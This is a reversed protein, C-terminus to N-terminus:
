ETTSATDTDDSPDTGTSVVTLVAPLIGFATVLSFGIALVTTVGFNALVPFRSVVLIGFGFITTFSSGIIPRSLKGVSTAAAGLPPRGHTETEFVFREYIHIGYTVGIGLTLSSMTITLPNWPVSLLYMGGAVLLAASGAVSVVIIASVRISRFALALFIFGLTFSIVTMPTLGATVNEIVNRNLVPKGTIRVDNAGTLALDANGEFEDILTRVEEGEVDNVYFTLLVRSPTQSPDRVSMMGSGTQKALTADLQGNTEPIEGNNAMQVALVPSQVANVQDNALMLKQYRALERFTEPSYVQDSSVSVYMVKPSDVTDSLRDIDNKADLDQPWFDMMEQNPEVQPYAYAGGTVLLLAIILTVLPKGGTVLSTFRETGTELWDSSEPTTDNPDREAYGGGDFRVLLAPLLTVSLAMSALVAMASTVGFQRVPPVSSVLLSGLGIVTAGMAILLARGTTRTTVAAATEPSCGSEREEVYRSHIQLGYDIGLGLAIPMVGLMIANFDFGFVGMAGVMYLLAVIATGLPLFVHWGREVKARMVLYVVTFILAFAGAFLTIMEPLMLGFAANEFVPQGTITTTVGPPLPALGTETQVRDYIIDSDRQPLFAGRDFTDVNGYSALIITTGSEPELRDVMAASEPGQARVRDIAREVEAETQPIEGGNGQRIVDALSTVTTTEDINEAYRRDLRDIARITKPDHLEGSEVIIFVNNGTEFDEKLTEWDTATQSDDEIYLTMGMSMQIGAVGIAVALLATVLVVAITKVQNRAAYRGAYELGDQIREGATM